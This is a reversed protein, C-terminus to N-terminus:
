RARASFEYVFLSPFDELRLIQRMARGSIEAAERESVLLVPGDALEDPLETLSSISRVRNREPHFDDFKANILTVRWWAHALGCQRPIFTAFCLVTGDHHSTLFDDIIAATQTDRESARATPAAVVMPYQVLTTATVVVVLMGTVVRISWPKQEYLWLLASPIAALTSMHFRSSVLIYEPRPVLLSIDFTSALDIAMITLIMTGLAREAMASPAGRNLSRLLMWIGVVLLGPLVFHWASEILFPWPNFFHLKEWFSLGGSTNGGRYLIAFAAGFPWELALINAGALWGLAVPRGVAMYPSSWPLKRLIAVVVATAVAAVIYILVTLLAKYSGASGTLWLIGRLTFSGCAFIFVAIAIDGLRKLSQFARSKPESSLFKMRLPRSALVAALVGVITIAAIYNLTLAFGLGALTM